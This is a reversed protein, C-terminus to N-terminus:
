LIANESSDNGSFLSPVDLTLGNFRGVHRRSSIRSQEHVVPRHMARELEEFSVWVLDHLGPELQLKGVVDLTLQCHPKSCDKRALSM